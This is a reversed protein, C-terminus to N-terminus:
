GKLSQLETTKSYECLQAVTVVIVELVDEDGGFSAGCRTNATVEWEEGVM